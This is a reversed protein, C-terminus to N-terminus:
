VCIKFTLMCVKPAYVDLTIPKNLIDNCGLYEIYM